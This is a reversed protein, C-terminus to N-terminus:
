DSEVPRSIVRADDGDSAPPGEGAEAAQRTRKRTTSGPYWDALGWLSPGVKVFDRRRLMSRYLAGPTGISVGGKRIADFIEDTHLPRSSDYMELVAHAADPGSKGHFQGVRVIAAPVSSDDDPLLTAIPKSASKPTMDPVEGLQGSLWAIVIDLREREDIARQLAERLAVDESMKGM